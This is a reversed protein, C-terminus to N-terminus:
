KRDMLKHMLTVFEARTAKGDPHFSGDGYGNLWGEQNLEVLFPYAWHSTNVDTFPSSEADVGQMNLVRALLVAMESRTITADPRITGDPYGNIIGAASAKRMADFAWHSASIDAYQFDADVQELEMVKTMIQVVEARTISQDPRFTFDGYGNILQQESLTQISELAWHEEIDIFGAVLPSATVKLQYLSKEFSQNATLMVYYSGPALKETITAVSHGYDNSVTNLLNQQADMLQITMVRDTPIQNLSLHTVSEEDLRFTFWDVDERTEFHGTYSTNLLVNSAQYSRDNPENPDTLKEHYEVFMTYEGAVPHSELTVSENTVRIYYKGPFVDINKSIEPEGEDGFDVFIPTGGEKQIWIALDMRYTDGTVKVQLNGEQEVTYVYWDQDNLQHFTGIVREVNSPLPFAKYQRDNDEFADRYITFQSTISYNVSSQFSSSSKIHLYGIGENVNVTIPQSLDYFYKTEQGDVVYEAQLNALQSSDQAQISLTLTGDYPLTIKYWDRDSQSTLQASIMSSVPLEVATSKTDNPEYIDVQLPINLARDARLMGYGSHEDWGTTGIDQATMRLHNRVQEPTLDPYKSWLLAAVAAVQPAAMSTGQNYDYGGGITTTFVEWPAVLDLEPGRNSAPEVQQNEDVGGVALVTPYAAPYKVDQGDNGSAAVLLVGKSEAYQVIDQLYNSYKYLGLALVVIKAGHDVAYKIGRGLQDESGSGNADLAKIPMIKADWLVGSIGTANNGMAALVGAINTGHGHDDQPPQEEDILNMGDVLNRQLDPHSLDVGTDVLGIVISTNSQVDDWAEEAGIMELYNQFRLMPDNPKANVYVNRNPEMYLVSESNRWLEIWEYLHNLDLPTAVTVGLEDDHHHIQSSAMFQEPPNGDKWRIIWESPVDESVQSSPQVEAIVVPHPIMLTVILIAIWGWLMMTKKKM